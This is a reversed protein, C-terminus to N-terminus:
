KPLAAKVASMTKQADAIIKISYEFNHAGHSGDADVFTYNTKAADYKAKLEASLASPNAKLAADITAVDAKLAELKMAVNEQMMDLFVGRSESSSREHCRTCSDKGPMNLKVAEGPRVVKFDHNSAAFHCDLCTIPEGDFSAGSHAGKTPAIGIAGYGSLMEKMPHHATAGAKLTGGEPISGNHCSECLAQPEQRLQGVISGGHPDHCAVCTIGNVKEHAKPDFAANVVADSSHCKYCTASAHGSSALSNAANAHASIEWQAMQRMHKGEFQLASQEPTVKLYKFGNATMDGGPRYGVPWRTGDPMNGQGNHCSGCVQVDNTKVIQSVDGKGLIHDRGPGHCSECGIGADAFRATTKDYGTAHCGACSTNWNSGGKYAVYKQQADNWEVNLYKLEGTAPDRALFRQGSVIWDAKLLEEQFEPTTTTMDGPLDTPKMVQVLMNAHHSSEWVMYKDAHCGLCAQSGVYEPLEGKAKSSAVVVSATMAVLLAIVAILAVKLVKRNM